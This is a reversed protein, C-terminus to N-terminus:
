FGSRTSPNMMPRSALQPRPMFPKTANLISGPSRFRLKSRRSPPVSRSPLSSPTAFASADDSPPEGSRRLAGPPAPSPPQAGSQEPLRAAPLPPLERIPSPLVSTPPPTPQSPKSLPPTNDDLMPEAQRPQDVTPADLPSGASPIPVNSRPPPPITPPRDEEFPSRGPPPVNGEVARPIDGRHLPPSGANNGVAPPNLRELLLDLKRELDALRAEVGPASNAAAIDKVSAKSYDLNGTKAAPKPLPGQM